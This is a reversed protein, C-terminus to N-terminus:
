VLTEFSLKLQTLDCIMVPFAFTFIAIFPSFFTLHSCFLEFQNVTMVTPLFFLEYKNGKFGSADFYDCANLDIDSLLLFCLFLFLSVVVFFMLGGSFTPSFFLNVFFTM